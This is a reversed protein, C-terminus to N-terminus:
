SCGAVKAIRDQCVNRRCIVLPGWSVGLFRSYDAAASLFLISIYPPISQGIRFTPLGRDKIVESSSWAIGLSIPYGYDTLLPPFPIASGEAWLPVFLPRPPSVETKAAQEIFREASRCGARTESLEGRRNKNRRMKTHFSQCYL